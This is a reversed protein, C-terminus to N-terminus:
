QQEKRVLNGFDDVICVVHPTFNKQLEYLEINRLIVYYVDPRGDWWRSVAYDDRAYGWPFTIM